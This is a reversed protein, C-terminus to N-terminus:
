KSTAMWTPTKEVNELWSSSVLMEGDLPTEVHDLGYFIPAIDVIPHGLCQGTLWFMLLHSLIM